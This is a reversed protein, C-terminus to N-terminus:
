VRNYENNSYLLVLNDHCVTSSNKSFAKLEQKFSQANTLNERWTNENIDASWKAFDCEKNLVQLFLNSRIKIWHFKFMQTATMKFHSVFKIDKYGLVTIGVFM